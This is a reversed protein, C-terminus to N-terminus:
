SDAPRVNISTAMGAAAHEQIHCHVLWEGVDFAILSIDIEQGSEVLVTDRFHAEDVPEGDVAVIKFFQGHLHIPHTAESPNALRLKVFDGETVSLTERNDFTRGNFTWAGAPEEGALTLAQGTTSSSTQESVVFDIDFTEDIPADVATDWRPVLPNTPPEFDPTDIASGSSKIRGLTFGEDNFNETIVVDTPDAPTILDVDIRNGPAVVFGDAPQTERVLVGDVAILRASLEGFDPAYPRGNSANIIRLRIREGPIFDVVPAVIGNTTVVDGWRGNHQIANPDDFDEVITGDDNFLWDDIVWVIDQSYEPEAPNVVVISGYLGRDLQESGNTHSHYWFTGADPPTFRYQFSDGPEVPTQSLGPVGDMDNPVRIGHWHITTSQPLDNTFDVALADGLDVRIGPGPVSGNYAWVPTQRGGEIEVVAPAAVLDVQQEVGNPVAAVPYAAAFEEILGPRSDTSPRLVVLAVAGVVVVVGVVVLRVRDTM